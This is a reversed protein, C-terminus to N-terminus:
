PNNVPTIPNDWAKLIDGSGGLSPPLYEEDKLIMYGWTVSAVFYLCKFVEFIGKKSRIM